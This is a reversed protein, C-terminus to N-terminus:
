EDDDEDDADEEEEAEEEEDDDEEDEEAESDKPLPADPKTNVAGADAVTELLRMSQLDNFYQVTLKDIAAVIIAYRKAEGPKTGAKPLALADAEILLRVAEIAAGRSNQYHIFEQKGPGVSDASDDSARSKSGKASAARAPPNKLKKVEVVRDRGDVEDVTVKVYDGEKVNPRDFGFSLWDTADEGQADQLITSYLTWPGKRGRGSKEHIKGVFGKFTQSM